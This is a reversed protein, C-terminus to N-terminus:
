RLYSARSFASGWFSVLTLTIMDVLSPPSVRARRGAAAVAEAQSCRLEEDEWTRSGTKGPNVGGHSCTQPKPIPSVGAANHTELPATDDLLTASSVDHRETREGHNVVGYPDSAIANAKGISRSSSRSNSSRSTDKSSNRKPTTIPADCTTVDSKSKESRHDNSISSSSTDAGVVEATGCPEVCTRRRHRHRHRRCGYRDRRASTDTDSDKVAATECPDDTNSKRRPSSHLVLSAYDLVATTAEAVNQEQNGSKSSCSTTSSSSHADLPRHPALRFFDAFPTRSLM